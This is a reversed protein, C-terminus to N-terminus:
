FYTFLSKDDNKHKNTQKYCKQVVSPIIHYFEFPIREHQAQINWFESKSQIVGAMKYYIVDCKPKECLM